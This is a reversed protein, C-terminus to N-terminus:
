LSITKLILKFSAAFIHPNLSLSIRRAAFYIPSALPKIVMHVIPSLWLAMPTLLFKLRILKVRMVPCIPLGPEPGNDSVPWGFSFWSVGCAASRHRYAASAPARPTQQPVSATSSPQQVASSAAPQQPRHATYISRPLAGTSTPSGGLGPAQFSGVDGGRVNQEPKVAVRVRLRCARLM